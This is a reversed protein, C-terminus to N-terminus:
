SAQGRKRRRPETVYTGYLSLLIHVILAVVTGVTLYTFGRDTYKVVPDSHEKFPM